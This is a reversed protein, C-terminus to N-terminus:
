IRTSPIELIEERDSPCTPPQKGKLKEELDAIRQRLKEVTDSTRRIRAFGAPRPNFELENIIASERCVWTRRSHGPDALTKKIKQTFAGIAGQRRGKEGAEVLSVRPNTHYFGIVTQRDGLM